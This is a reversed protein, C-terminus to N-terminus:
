AAKRKLWWVAGVIPLWLPTLILFFILGQAIVKGVSKLVDTASDVTGDMWKGQGPTHSALLQGTHFRVQLSAMASLTSLTKHQATLSEIQMRVNTIRNKVSLIDDMRKASKMMIRYQEEEQRLVKIRANIDVAQATVDEGTLNEATMEGYSRLTNLAAEFKKSPVRIMMTAMPEDGSMSFSSQEVYGGFAAILQTTDDVSKRVDQVQVDISGNRIVMRNPELMSDINSYRSGEGARMTKDLGSAQPASASAGGGPAQESKRRVISGPLTSSKSEEEPSAFREEMDRGRAAEGRSDMDMPAEAQPDVLPTSAVETFSATEKASMKPGITLPYLVGLCVVLVSFGAAYRLVTFLPRRPKAVKSMAEDFGHVPIDKATSKISHTIKQMEEVEARLSADTDLASRVEAMREETLEGDLFAKLDERINM